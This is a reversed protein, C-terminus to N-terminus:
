RARRLAAVALGAGGAALTVLAILAFSARVGVLPLAFGATVGGLPGGSQMLTRMIAFCRGHYGPPIIKMRLTQGWITLPASFAGYGALALGAAVAGETLALAGIAAGALLLTLCIALGTAFPLRAVAVTSASALQGIAICGLLVGYLQAGRGLVTDAFVPVAVLLAGLGVNYALYMATTSALVPSTVIVRAADVLSVRAGARAPEAEQRPRCRWVGWAFLLYTAADLYLPQLPGVQAILAGALPPGLVGGLTYGITELANGANVEDPELLAPLLSPVGALPIMMLLGFASAVVYVYWLPLADFAALAPVSAVLATKALADALMVRRREFRDLLWGASLGGVLVPATFCFSLWGLSVTSGTVQLVYWVLTTRTVADGLVSVAFGAWFRGFGRESALARRVSM